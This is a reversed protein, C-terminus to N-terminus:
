PPVIAWKVAKDLRVPMIASSSADVRGNREQPLCSESDSGNHVGSTSRVINPVHNPRARVIPLETGAAAPLLVRLKSGAGGFLDRTVVKRKSPFVSSCDESHAKTRLRKCADATFGDTRYPVAQHTLPVLM